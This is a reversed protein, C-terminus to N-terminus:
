IPLHEPELAFEEHETHPMDVFCLWCEASFSPVYRAAVASFRAARDEGLLDGFDPADGALNDIITSM